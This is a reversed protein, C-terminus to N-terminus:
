KLLMEKGFSISYSVFFSSCAYFRLADFILIKNKFFMSSLISTKIKGITLKTFEVFKGFKVQLFLIKNKKLPITQRM